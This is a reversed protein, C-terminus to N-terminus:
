LSAYFYPRKETVKKIKGLSLFYRILRRSSDQHIEFKKSIDFSCFRKKNKIFNLYKKDFENIKGKLISLKKKHKIYKILKKHVEKNSKISLKWEKKYTWIRLNWNLNKVINSVLTKMLPNKKGVSIVVQYNKPDITGEADIIGSLLALSENKTLKKNVLNKIELELSNHLKSNVIFAEYAYDGYMTPIDKKTIKKMVVNGVFNKQLFKKTDNVLNKEKNIIGVRPYGRRDGFWKGLEYLYEEKMKLKSAEVLSLYM